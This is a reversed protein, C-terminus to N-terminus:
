IGINLKEIPSVIRKYNESNVHTYIETTKPSSHGLIEQIYRSNVGSELLHTAYSHRLTHLTVPKTINSKAKAKKFVSQLSSGSYHAGSAGTFLLGNPKYARAYNRLFTLTKESLPVMRDKKGKGGKIHILMRESDIDNTRLHILESRRLGCSYILAIMTRHKLNVISNILCEVERLSLIVPLKKQSFPRELNTIEIKSTECHEDFLKLANILQNQFSVSYNYKLIYNKNFEQVHDHTLENLDCKHHFRFFLQLCSIYSDITNQSYRISKLYDSFHELSLVAAESPRPLSPAKLKPQDLSQASLKSADIQAFVSFHKKFHEIASFSSSIIWSNAEKFWKANPYHRFEQVLIPHYEFFCLIVRTKQCIGHNLHITPKM